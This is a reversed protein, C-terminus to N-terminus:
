SDSRMAQHYQERQTKKMFIIKPWPRRKMNLRKFVFYQKKEDYFNM